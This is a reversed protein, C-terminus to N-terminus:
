GPASNVGAAAHLLLLVLGLGLQSIGKINFLLPRYMYKKFWEVGRKTGWCYGSGGGGDQFPRRHTSSQTHEYKIALQRTTPPHHVSRKRCSSSPPPPPFNNRIFRFTTWYVRAIYEIQQGNYQIWKGILESHLPSVKAMSQIPHFQIERNVLTNSPEGGTRNLVEGSSPARSLSNMSFVPSSSPKPNPLLPILKLATFLDYLCNNISTLHFSSNWLSLVSERFSLSSNILFVFFFSFPQLKVKFLNM